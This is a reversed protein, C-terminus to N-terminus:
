DLQMLFAFNFCLFFTSSGWFSFDVVLFGNLSMGENLGHLKDKVEKLKELAKLNPATTRRLIGELSSVSEKLKEMYADREQESKLIQWFM